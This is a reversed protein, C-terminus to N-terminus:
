ALTFPVIDGNEIPEIVHAYTSVLFLPRTVHAYCCLYHKGEKILPNHVIQSKGLFTISTM